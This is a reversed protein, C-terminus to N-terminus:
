VWKVPSKASFRGQSLKLRCLNRIQGFVACTESMIQKVSKNAQDNVAYFVSSVGGCLAVCCLISGAHMESVKNYPIGLDRRRYRLVSYM